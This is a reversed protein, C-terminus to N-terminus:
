QLNKERLRRMAEAHVKAGDPRVGAERDWTFLMAEMEDYVEAYMTDYADDDCDRKEDAIEQQTKATPDNWTM